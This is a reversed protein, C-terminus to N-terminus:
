GESRGYVTVFGGNKGLPGDLTSGDVPMMISLLGLKSLAVDYVINTRTTKGTELRLGQSVEGGVSRSSRIVILQDGAPINNLVFKGQSDVETEPGNRVGVSIDTLIKGSRDMVSGELRATFPPVPTPQPNRNVLLLFVGGIIAALILALSTLLAGSITPHKKSKM